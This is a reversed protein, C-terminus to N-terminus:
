NGTLNLLAFDNPKKDRGSSFVFQYSYKKIACYQRLTRRALPRM